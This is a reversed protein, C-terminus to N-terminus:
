SQRHAYLNDQVRPQHDERVSRDRCTAAPGDGLAM